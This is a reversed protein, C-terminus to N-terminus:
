DTQDDMKGLAVRAAEYEENSAGSPPLLGKDRAQQILRSAHRPTVGLWEKVAMRPAGSDRNHIYVRAVEKLRATKPANELAIAARTQDVDPMPYRGDSAHQLFVNRALSELRFMSLDEDRIARGGPKRTVAISTCEIVGNHIEFTAKLDPGVRGSADEEGEFTFDAARPVMYGDFVVPRGLRATTRGKGIWKM